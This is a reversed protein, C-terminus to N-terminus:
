LSTPHMAAAFGNCINLDQNNIILKKTKVIFQTNEPHPNIHSRAGVLLGGPIVPFRNHGM